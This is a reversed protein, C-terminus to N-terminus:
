WTVAKMLDAILRANTTWSAALDPPPVDYFDKSLHISERVLSLILRAEHKDSLQPMHRTQPYLRFHECVMEVLHENLEHFRTRTNLLLHPEKAFIQSRRERIHDPDQQGLAPAILELVGLVLNTQPHAHFTAVLEDDLKTPMTGLVAEDKTDMYNFLTRRSIGARTCIDDVTVGDYGHKVVLATAADVIKERTQARKRERLGECM